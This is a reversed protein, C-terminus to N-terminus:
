SPGRLPATTPTCSARVAEAWFQVRLRRLMEEMLRILAAAAPKRSATANSTPAASAESIGDSPAVTSEDDAATSNPRTTAVAAITTKPRLTAIVGGPTTARRDGVTSSAGWTRAPRTM